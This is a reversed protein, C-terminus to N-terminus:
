LAVLRHRIPLLRRKTGVMLESQLANVVISTDYKENFDGQISSSTIVGAGPGMKNQMAKAAWYRTTVEDAIARKIFIYEDELETESLGATFTVKVTGPATPWSQSLRILRGTTSFNASKQDLVYDDAETLLTDAAFDGSGKGFEADLDEYVSTITKVFKQSLVIVSQDSRWVSAAVKQGVLEFQEDVVVGTMERRPYFEDTFTGYTIQHRVFQRAASEVWDRLQQLLSLSTGSLQGTIYQLEVDTCIKSLTM